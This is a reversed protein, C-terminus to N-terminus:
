LMVHQNFQLPSDQFNNSSVRRVTELILVTSKESRELKNTFDKLVQSGTKSSGKTKMERKNLNGQTKM